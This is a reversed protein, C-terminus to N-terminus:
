SGGAIRRRVEAEMAEAVQEPGLGTSDLSVADEAPKMPALDRAADRRDRAEQDRLIQELEVSEGRGAMERQRRRAREVPDANLFFKCAADPFVLTGQDRGECVMNRGAAITRQMQVLRRRVAPSDAVAGTAATMERTRILSTVDEGDLLVRGGPPMELRLSAVLAALASEDRLDLGARRAALAVARYMAGTDLFEFGLRQALTRAASSKGAGAPGDITIIM